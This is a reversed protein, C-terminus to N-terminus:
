RCTELSAVADELVVLQQQVYNLHAIDPEPRNLEITQELRFLEHIRRARSLEQHIQRRSPRPRRARRRFTHKM